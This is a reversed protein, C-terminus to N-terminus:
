PTVACEDRAEGFSAAISLLSATIRDLRVVDCDPCWYPGWLTGAPQECGREYCTRGSPKQCKHAYRDGAWCDPHARDKASMDRRGCGTCSADACGCHDSM